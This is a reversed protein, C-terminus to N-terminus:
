KRLVATTKHVISFGCEKKTILALINGYKYESFDLISFDKSLTNIHIYVESYLSCSRVERWFNKMVATQSMNLDRGIDRYSKGSIWKKVITQKNLLSKEFLCFIDKEKRKLIM